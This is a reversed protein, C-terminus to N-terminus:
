IWVQMCSKQWFAARGNAARLPGLQKEVLCQYQARPQRHAQKCYFCQISNRFKTQLGPNSSISQGPQFDLRELCQPLLMNWLQKTSPLTTKELHRPAHLCAKQYEVHLWVPYCGWGLAKWHQEPTHKASISPFIHADHCLWPKDRVASLYWTHSRINYAREKGAKTSMISVKDHSSCWIPTCRLPALLLINMVSCNSWGIYTSTDCSKTCTRWSPDEWLYRPLCMRPFRFCRPQISKFWRVMSVFLCTLKFNRKFNNLATTVGAM